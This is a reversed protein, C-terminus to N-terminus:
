NGDLSGTIFRKKRTLGCTLLSKVCQTTLRVRRVQRSEHRPARLEAATWPRQGTAGSLTLSRRTRSFSATFFLQERKPPQQLSCSSQKGIILHGIAEHRSEATVVRSSADRRATQETSPLLELRTAAHRPTTDRRHTSRASLLRTWASNRGVLCHNCKIAQGIAYDSLENM